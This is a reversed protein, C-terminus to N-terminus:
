SLVLLHDGVRAKCVEIQCFEFYQLSIYTDCLDCRVVDQASHRPDIVSSCLFSGLSNMSKIFYKM